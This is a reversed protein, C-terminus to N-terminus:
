RDLSIVAKLVTGIDSVVVFRLALLVALFQPLKEEVRYPEPHPGVNREAATQAATEIRRRDHTDRIGQHSIVAYNVTCQNAFVLFRECCDIAIFLKTFLTKDVNHNITCVSFGMKHLRVSIFQPDLQPLQDEVLIFREVRRRDICLPIHHSQCGFVTDCYQEVTLPAILQEGAIRPM